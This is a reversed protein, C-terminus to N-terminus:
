EMWVSEIEVAHKESAHEPYLWAGFCFNIAQLQSPQFRDGPQGREAPHQWHSFYRFQDLPVTVEQWSGTLPVNCGWPAGDAELLVGEVASTAPEGARVRLRLSKCSALRDAWPRLREGLETRWSVCRPAADFGPASVRWAPGDKGAVVSDRCGPQGESRFRDKGCILRIPATAQFVTTTYCRGPQELRSASASRATTDAEGGPFWYLSDKAALRVRYVLEGAQLATGPITGSYSYARDSRLPLEQWPANSQLKYQLRVEPTDPAAARLRIPLDRGTVWDPAPDHWVAPKLGRREPPAVFELDYGAPCAAKVKPRTLFWVGPSVTITGQKARATTGATHLTATFNPGLDPLHISMPRARWYVRSVERELSDPGFPDNVWVADPYVHM